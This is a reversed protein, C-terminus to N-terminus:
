RGSSFTNCCSERGATLYPFLGETCAPKKQMTAGITLSDIEGRIRATASRRGTQRDEEVLMGGSWNGIHSLLGCYKLM